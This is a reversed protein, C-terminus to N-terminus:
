DASRWGPETDARAPDATTPDATTPDAAEPDAAEPDAADASGAADDADEVAPDVGDEAYSTRLEVIQTDPQYDPDLRLLDWVPRAAPDSSAARSAQQL